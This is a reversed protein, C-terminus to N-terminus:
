QVVLDVARIFQSFSRCPRSPETLFAPPDFQRVGAARFVQATAPCGPQGYSAIEVGELGGLGDLLVATDGVFVFDCIARLRELVFGWRRASWPFQRRGPLHVVGVRLCPQDTDSRWVRCQSVMSWAHVLDIYLPGEQAASAGIAALLLQADTFFGESLAEPPRAYLDPVEVAFAARSPVAALAEFRQRGVEEEGRAMMELHEYSTDLPSGACQWSPAAYRAVNEANFLYPKTSFTGAVWQWSLHNCALDGDLLHGYLWDACVRWHVHRLHVLYSALWMRAHNHLYGTQYLCAVAQDIVALGTRGEMVDDPMQPTYRVGAIAPRLDSFIRSGEHAWVHHFFVRWAFEAFLKDDRGLPQHARVGEVAEGLSLYGHTIYPSLRSVSGNLHNRTKAYRAPHLAALREQWAADSRPFDESLPV